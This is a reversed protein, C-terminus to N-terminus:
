KILQGSPGVGAPALAPQQSPLAREGYGTNPLPPALPTGPLDPRALTVRSARGNGAAGGEPSNITVMAEAAARALAPKEAYLDVVVGGTPLSLARGSMASHGHVGRLLVTSQTANGDPLFSNDPSTVIQLPTVCVIEGGVICNGYQIEYAGSPDRGVNTIPLGQFTGGLWYVPFAEQMVLPELASPPTPRNQVTDACASLGCAGLM